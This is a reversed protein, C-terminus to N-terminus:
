SQASSKKASSKKAPEKKAPMKKVPAAKEMAAVEPSPAEEPYTENAPTVPDVRRSRGPAYPSPELGPHRRTQVVIIVIGLVIAAFSAWVNAPIGLFVDSTPDIRISELWSRGLGYWILYV